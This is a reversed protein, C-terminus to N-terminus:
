QPHTASGVIDPTQPAALAGADEPPFDPLRRNNISLDDRDRKEPGRALWSTWGLLRGCHSEPPNDEEDLRIGPVDSGRLVLQVEWDLEVGVYTLLWDRVQRMGRTPPLLARYRRLSMPGLRVRFRSSRDWVREGLIATRGLEANGDRLGLRTRCDEPLNWWHGVFEEVEAPLGFYRGLIARLGECHSPISLLHGGVHLKTERALSDRDEFAPTGFGLLSAMCRGMPDDARDFSVAQQHEAWARYFLSLLRHHIIDLFKAWTPDGHRRQRGYVYETFSVPMPGSPGTLGFCNVLLWPPVGEGGEVWSALDTPSFGLQVAQGFRVAEQDPLDAHGIRPADRFECELQRLAEFFGRRYTERAVTAM